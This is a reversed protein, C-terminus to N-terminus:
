KGRRSVKAVQMDYTQTYIRDCGTFFAVDERVDEVVQIHLWSRGILNQFLEHVVENCLVSAAKLLALHSIGIQPCDAIKPTQMPMSQSQTLM